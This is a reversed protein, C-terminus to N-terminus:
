KVLKRESAMSLATAEGTIGVAMPAGMRAGNITAAGLSCPETARALHPTCQECSFRATHRSLM